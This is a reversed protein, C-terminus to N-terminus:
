VSVTYDDASLFSLVARNFEESQKAAIFHGGRIFVLTSIPLSSAILRTHSELILDNTGAIVLVPMIVEKLEHPKIDPQNVMLELMERMLVAKRGFRELFSALRHAVIIPITIYRKVGSPHLNGGNLILKEAYGPYRLAFLLAINAGDSFGLLHARGIRREDLFGKLDEAFQCLTFPTEGRTSQGHGRTDVALVRYNRSLADMQHSFYASSGGNGHLLVLPFGEGQELYHLKIDM